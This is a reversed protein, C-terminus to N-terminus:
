GLHIRVEKVNRDAFIKKARQLFIQREAEAVIETQRKYEETQEQVYEMDAPNAIYNRHELIGDSAAGNSWSLVPVWEPLKNTTRRSYEIESEHIVEIEFNM